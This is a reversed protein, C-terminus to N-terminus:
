EVHPKMIDVEDVRDSGANLAKSLNGIFDGFLAPDMNNGILTLLFWDGLQCEEAVAGSYSKYGKPLKSALQWQRVSIVFITLFRHVVSFASFLMLIVFWFWLFVYIKENVINQAILCMTDFDQIEGSPGYQHWRCKTIKPFVAMMPDVRDEPDLTLFSVVDFGYTTFEYGLFVDTLYIQAMVNLLTLVECFTFVSFYFSHTHLGELFYNCLIKLKQKRQTQDMIRKDMDSIISRIHGGEWQKWLWYPLYFLLAQFVLMFPVWIYYSRYKMSQGAKPTGLGHYPIDRGVVLSSNYPLSFTSSVWCYQNLAKGFYMMEIPNNKDHYCHIPKGIYSTATVFAACALLAVMTYRHLTFVGSDVRIKRSAKIKSAISGFVGLM